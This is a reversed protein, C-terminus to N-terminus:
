PQMHVVISHFKWHQQIMQQLMMLINNYDGSRRKLKRNVISAKILRPREGNTFPNKINNSNM